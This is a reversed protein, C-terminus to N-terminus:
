SEDKADTQGKTVPAWHVCGFEPGTLIGWEEDYEVVAADRDFGILEQQPPRTIRRHISKSCCAGFGGLKVPGVKGTEYHYDTIGNPAWLSCTKCRAYMLRSAPHCNETEELSDRDGAYACGGDFDCKLCCYKCVNNRNPCMDDDGALLTSCVICHTSVHDVGIIHTPIRNRRM